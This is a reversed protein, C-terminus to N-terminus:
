SVFTWAAKRDEGVWTPRAVSIHSPGGQRLIKASLMAHRQFSALTLSEKSLQTKSQAFRAWLNRFGIGLELRRMFFSRM